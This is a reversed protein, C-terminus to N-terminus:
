QSPILSSLLYAISTVMFFAFLVFLGLCGKKQDQKTYKNNQKKQESQASASPNTSYTEWSSKFAPTSQRPSVDLFDLDDYTTKDAGTAPSYPYVKSKDDKVPANRCDHVHDYGEFALWNGAPMKRLQIRRGCYKCSRYYSSSM